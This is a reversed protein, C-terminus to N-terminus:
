HSRPSTLAAACSTLLARARFRTLLGRWRACTRGDPALVRAFPLIADGDGAALLAARPPLASMDSVRLLSPATQAIAHRARVADGVIEIRVAIGDQRAIAAIVPLELRCPTCYAAYYVDLVPPPSTAPCM